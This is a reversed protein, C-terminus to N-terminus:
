PLVKLFNNDNPRSYIISNSNDMNLISIKTKWEKGIKFVRYTM